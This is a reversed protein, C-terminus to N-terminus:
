ERMQLWWSVEDNNKPLNNLYHNFEELKKGEHNININRCMHEIPELEVKTIYCNKVYGINRVELESIIFRNDDPILGIESFVDMIWQSINDCDMRRKDWAITTITMKCPFAVYRWEVGKLINLIRKHWEQYRPSAILRGRVIEKSNKKIGIYGYFYIVVRKPLNYEVEVDICDRRWWEFKQKSM